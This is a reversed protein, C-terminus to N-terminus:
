LCRADPGSILAKTTVALHGIALVSGRIASATDCWLLADHIHRQAFDACGPSGTEGAFPAFDYM